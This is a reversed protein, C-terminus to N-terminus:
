EGGRRIASLSPDREPLLVVVVVLKRVIAFGSPAHVPPPGGHPGDSGGFQEDCILTM